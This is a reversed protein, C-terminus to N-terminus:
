KREERDIDFIIQKLYSPSGGASKLTAIDRLRKEVKFDEMYGYGGMTQLCDTVAKACMEMVTLKTMAARIFLRDFSSAPRSISQVAADSVAARAESEGILNKIAPHNEILTGGQYRQSAYDKATAIAGKAIGVAIASMGIWNLFMARALLGKANGNDIRHREPVKVNNFELNWLDCSRLGTRWGANTKSLGKSNSSILFCGWDSAVRAFVVFTDVGPISWVFSKQGNIIYDGAAPVAETVVRAPLDQDPSRIAGFYPLSVGEQICIGARQPSLGEVPPALQIIHSAVGQTKLLMAIGGCVSAVSRLIVSSFQLGATDCACGFIGYECGASGKDPSSALGTVFATDIIGPVLELNGDPGEGDFMPEIQKKTFQRALDSFHEMEESSLETFDNSALLDGM